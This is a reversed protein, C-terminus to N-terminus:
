GLEHRRKWPQRARRNTRDSTPRAAFFFQPIIYPHYLLTIPPITTTYYHYLLSISTHGSRLPSARAQKHRDVFLLKRPMVSKTNWGGMRRTRSTVTRVRSSAPWRAHRQALTERTPWLRLAAPRPFLTTGCRAIASCDCATRECRHASSFHTRPIHCVRWVAPRFSRLLCYPRFQGLGQSNLPWTNPRPLHL